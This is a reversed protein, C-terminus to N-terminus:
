LVCVTYWYRVDVTLPKVNKKVIVAGHISLIMIVIKLKYLFYVRLSGITTVIKLWCFMRGRGRPLFNSVPWCRAHPETDTRM